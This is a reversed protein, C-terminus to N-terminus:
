YGYNAIIVSAWQLPWYCRGKRQNGFSAGTTTSWCDASVSHNDGLKEHMYESHEIDVGSAWRIKYKVSMSLASGEDVTKDAHSGALSWWTGYSGQPNQANDRLYGIFDSSQDLQRCQHSDGTARCGFPDAFRIGDHPTGLTVVSPAVIYPPWGAKRRQVRDIAYRVILGGMSHAVVNVPIGRSSYTHFVYWAWAQAVEQIPTDSTANMIEPASGTGFYNSCANDGRYYQVARFPGKYGWWRFHAM